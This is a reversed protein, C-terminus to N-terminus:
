PTKTQVLLQMQCIELLVIFAILTVSTCFAWQDQCVEWKSVKVWWPAMQRPRMKHWPWALLASSLLLRNMPIRSNKGSPDILPTWTAPVSVSRLQLFSQCKLGFFVLLLPAMSCAQKSTSPLIEIWHHLACWFISWKVSKSAPFFLRNNCPTECVQECVFSHPVSLHQTYRNKAVTKKELFLAVKRARNEGGLELVGPCPHLNSAGNIERTRISSSIGNYGGPFWWMDWWFPGQYLWFIMSQSPIRSGHDKGSPYFDERARNKPYLMGYTTHKVHRCKGLCSVRGEHGKRRCRGQRKEPFRPKRYSFRGCCDFWPPLTTKRAWAGVQSWWVAIWLIRFLSWGRGFYDKLNKFNPKPVPFDLFHGGLFLSRYSYAALSLIVQNNIRGLLSTTKFHIRKLSDQWLHYGSGRGGDLCSDNFSTERCGFLRSDPRSTQSRIM